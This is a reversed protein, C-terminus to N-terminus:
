QWVRVQPFFGFPNHSSTPMIMRRDWWGGGSRKSKKRVWIRKGSRFKLGLVVGVCGWGLELGFGLGSGVLGITLSSHPVAFGAQVIINNKM